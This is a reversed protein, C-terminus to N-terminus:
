KNNGIQVVSIGPLALMARSELHQVLVPLSPRLGLCGIIWAYSLLHISVTLGFLVSLCSAVSGFVLCRVAM